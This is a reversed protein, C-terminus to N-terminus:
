HPLWVAYLDHQALLLLIGYHFYFKTNLATEVSQLISQVDASYIGPNFTNVEPGIALYLVEKQCLLEFAAERFYKLFSELDVQEDSVGMAQADITGAVLRAAQDVVEETSRQTRAKRAM